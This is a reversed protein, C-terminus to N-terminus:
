AAARRGTPAMLRVRIKWRRLLGLFQTTPAVPTAMAALFINGTMLQPTTIGLHRATSWFKWARPLRRNAAWHEALHFVIGALAEERAPSLAGGDALARRWKAVCPESNEFLRTDYAKTRSIRDESSKWRIHHDVVRERLYRTGSALARIHLDVDQWSMLAEDWGGLAALTQKRWVPGTADWPIDLALFRDIDDGVRGMDFSRGLDGIRDHFVDGDFVVFDVDANDQMVRVRRALCDPALLDDSDLFVLLDARSESMGINRCVNAGSRDGPRCMYRVRPDAQARRQMEEATGDDSGDDVVLCEWDSMTQAGISDLAECLLRLRNRTPIVVAVVPTV